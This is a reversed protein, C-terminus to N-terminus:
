QESSFRKAYFEKGIIVEFNQFPYDQKDIDHLLTVINEAENRVPIIITLKTDKESLNIALNSSIKLWTTILVLNFVIYLSNIILLTIAM